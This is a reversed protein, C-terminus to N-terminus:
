FLLVYLEILLSPLHDEIMRWLRHIGNAILGELIKLGLAERRFLHLAVLVRVHLLEKRWVITHVEVTQLYGNVRVLGEAAIHGIEGRAEIEHHIVGEVVLCQRVSM